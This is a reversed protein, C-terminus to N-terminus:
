SQEGGRDGSRVTLCAGRGHEPGTQGRQHAIALLHMVDRTAARTASPSAASREGLEEPAVAEPGCWGAARILKQRWAAAHAVLDPTLRGSSVSVGGAM